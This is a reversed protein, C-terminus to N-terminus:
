ARLCESDVWTREWALLFGVSSSFALAFYPRASLALARICLSSSPKMMCLSLFSLMLLSALPGASYATMDAWGALWGAEGGRYEM